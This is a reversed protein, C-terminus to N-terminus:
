TVTIVTDCLSYLRSFHLSKGLCMTKIASGLEPCGSQSTHMKRLFNPCIQGFWNTNGPKLIAKISTRIIIM